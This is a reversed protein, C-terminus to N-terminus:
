SAIELVSRIDIHRLEVPITKAIDWASTLENADITQKKMMTTLANGTEFPLVESAVLESDIIVKEGRILLIRQEIQGIKISKTSTM